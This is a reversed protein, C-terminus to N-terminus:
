RPVSHWLRGTCIGGCSVAFAFSTREINRQRHEFKHREVGAAYEIVPQTFALLLAIAIESCM